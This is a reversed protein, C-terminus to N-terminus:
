DIEADKKEELLPTDPTASTQFKTRHTFRFYRLQHSLSEKFRKPQLYAIPTHNSTLPKLGQETLIISHDVLINILDDFYNALPECDQIVM